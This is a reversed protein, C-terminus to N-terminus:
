RENLFDNVYECVTDQYIVEGWDTDHYRSHFALSIQSALEIIASKGSSKLLDNVSKNDGDRVFGILIETVLFNVDLIDWVDNESYM